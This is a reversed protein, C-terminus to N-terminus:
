PSSSQSIPTRDRASAFSKEELRQTWVPEPAWESEQGITGPTRGWAYLVTLAHRQGSVGMYQRLLSHAVDGQAEMPTSHSQKLQTVSPTHELLHHQSTAPESKGRSSRPLSLSGCMYVTVTTFCKV